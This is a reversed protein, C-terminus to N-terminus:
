KWIKSKEQYNLKTSIQDIEAQSLDDISYEGSRLKGLIYKIYEDEYAYRDTTSKDIEIWKKGNWKFLKNPLMDVRLFLDGKQPNAPFKTGFGANASTSPLDDLNDADGDSM